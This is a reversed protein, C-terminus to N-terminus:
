DLPSVANPSSQVPMKYSRQITTFFGSRDGVTDFNGFITAVVPMTAMHQYSVTTTVMNVGDESSLEMSDITTSCYAATLKPIGRFFAPLVDFGRAVNLNRDHGQSIALVSMAEERHGAAKLGTILKELSESASADSCGAAFGAPTVPAIVSAAAIRVKDQALDTDVGNRGVSAEPIWVAATRGSEFAALTTLLGAIMNQSLQMTGLMILIYVPIVILTETMVSGRSLRAVRQTRAQSRDHRMMQRAGGWLVGWILGSLAMLTFGDIKLQGWMFGDRLAEMVLGLSREPLGIALMLAACTLVGVLHGLCAVFTALIRGRGAERKAKEMEM